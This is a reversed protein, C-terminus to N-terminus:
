NINGEAIARSAIRQSTEREILDIAEDETEVTGADILAKVKEDLEAKDAAAELEAAAEDAAKQRAREIAKPAFTEFYSEIIGPVREPAQNLVMAYLRKKEEEDMDDIYEDLTEAIPKFEESENSMQELAIEVVAEARAQDKIPTLNRVLQSNAYSLSAAKTLADMYLKRQIIPNAGDVAVGLEEAHQLEEKNLPRQTEQLERLRAEAELRETQTKEYAQVVKGFGTSELEAAKAAYSASGYPISALERGAIASEQEYLKNKRTLSALKVDYNYKNVKAMLAPDSELSELRDAVASRARKAANLKVLGEASTDSELQAIQDDLQKLSDKGRVVNMVDRNEAIPKAATRLTEINNIRDQIMERTKADTSQTLMGVLQDRREDLNSLDGQEAMARAQADMQVLENQVAMRERQKPIQGISQGLNFLGQTFAPNTASRVFNQGFRINAM